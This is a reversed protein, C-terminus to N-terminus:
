NPRIKSVVLFYTHSQRVEFAALLMGAAGHQITEKVGLGHRSSENLQRLASLRHKAAQPQHGHRHLSSVALLSQLVAASAPSGSSFALRLLVDRLAESDAGLVTLSQSAVAEVIPEDAAHELM